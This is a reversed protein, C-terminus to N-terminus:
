ITYFFFFYSFVHFFGFLVAINPAGRITHYEIFLFGNISSTRNLILISIASNLALHPGLLYKYTIYSFDFSVFSM